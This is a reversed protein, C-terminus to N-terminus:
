ASRGDKKALRFNIAVAERRFDEVATFNKYVSAFRLYGVEDLESLEALLALGIRSSSVEDGAQKFQATLEDVLVRIQEHTVPRNKLAASLGAIIKDVDYPEREGSRKVVM